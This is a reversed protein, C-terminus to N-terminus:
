LEALPLLGTEELTAALIVRDHCANLEEERALAAVRAEVAEPLPGFKLRAARLVLDRKASLLGEARGKAIGREEYITLMERVEELDPQALLAGFEREETDSLQLYTEVLNVLLSRRAEDM